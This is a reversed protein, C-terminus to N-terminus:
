GEAQKKQKSDSKNGQEVALKTYEKSAKNYTVLLEHKPRVFHLMSIYACKKAEMAEKYEGIDTQTKAFRRQSLGEMLRDSPNLENLVAFICPLRMTSARSTMISTHQSVSAELLLWENGRALAQCKGDFWALLYCCPLGECLPQGGHIDVANPVCTCAM